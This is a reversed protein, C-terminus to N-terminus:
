IDNSNYPKSFSVGDYIYGVGPESDADLSIVTVPRAFAARFKELNQAGNRATAAAKLVNNIFFALYTGDIPLVKDLDVGDMLTLEQSEEDWTSGVAVNEKNELVKADIPSSSVLLNWRTVLDEPAGEEHLHAVHFVESLGESNAETLFLYNM